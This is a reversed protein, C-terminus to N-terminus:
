GSPLAKAHAADKLLAKTAAEVDHQRLLSEGILFCGIGSKELDEFDRRTKLGSESVTLRDEPILQALAHSTAIDIELTALDRNNIGILPSQMGLATALEAEDHVELLVDIGLGVAQAELEAAQSPQLAALILLICDAGIARSETVQYPDLIFDKRLLPLNTALGAAALDDDRGAFYARDTLISLCAAGGASYAQALAAVDLDHRLRGASPSARKIECILGYQGKARAARLSNIFGRPQAAAAAAEELAALPVDKRRAEIHQRKALCIEDLLGSM